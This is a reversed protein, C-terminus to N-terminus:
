DPMAVRIQVSVQLVETPPPTILLISSRIADNFNSSLLKLPFTAEVIPASVLSRSAKDNSPPALPKSSILLAAPLSLKEFISVASLEIVLLNLRNPTTPNCTMWFKVFEAIANPDLISECTRSGNIWPPLFRASLMSCALNWNLPRPISMSAEIASARYATLPVAKPKSSAALAAACNPAEPILDPSSILDASRPIAPTAAIAPVDYVSIASTKVLTAPWPRSMPSSRLRRPARPMLAAAVSPFAKPFVSASIRSMTEFPWIENSINALAMDSAKPSCAVLALLVKVPAIDFICAAKARMPSICKVGYRSRCLSIKLARVGFISSAAAASLGRISVQSARARIRTSLRIPNM